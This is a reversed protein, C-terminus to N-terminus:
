GTWKMEQLCLINIRRIMVDVLEMSRGILSGVNWSGLRIKRNHALKAGQVHGHIHLSGRAYKESYRPGSMACPSANGGAGTWSHRM